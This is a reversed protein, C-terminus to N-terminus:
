ATSSYSTSTAVVEETSTFWTTFGVALCYTHPVGAHTIRVITPSQPFWNAERLRVSQKRQKSHVVGSRLLYISINVM